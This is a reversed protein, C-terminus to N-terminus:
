SALANVACCNVLPRPQGQLCAMARDLQEKICVALMFATSVYDGVVPSLAAAALVQSKARSSLRCGGLHGRGYQRVGRPGSGGSGDALRVVFWRCVGSVSLRGAAALGLRLGSVSAELRDAVVQSGQPEAFVRQQRGGGHGCLPAPACLVTAPPLYAALLPGGHSVFRYLRTGTFLCWLIVAFDAGGSVLHAAEYRNNSDAGTGNCPYLLFNVRGRHGTLRLHTPGNDDFQQLQRRERFFHSALCDTM